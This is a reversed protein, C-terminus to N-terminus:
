LLLEPLKQLADKMKGLKSNLITQSTKADSM